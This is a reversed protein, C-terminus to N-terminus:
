EFLLHCGSLAPLLLVLVLASCYLHIGIGSAETRSSKL